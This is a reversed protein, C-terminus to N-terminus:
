SRSSLIAAQHFICDIGECARATADADRLDVQRFDMRGLLGDLNERNGTVFNDIGRVREGGEVLKRALAWGVFGAAGTISYFNVHQLSGRVAPAPHIRARWKSFLM